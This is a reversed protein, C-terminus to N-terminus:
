LDLEVVDVEVFDVVVVVDDLPEPEVDGVMTTEGPLDVVTLLRGRTM